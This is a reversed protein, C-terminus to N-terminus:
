KWEIIRVQPFKEKIKQPTAGKLDSLLIEALYKCDEDRFLRKPIIGDIARPIFAYPPELSFVFFLAEPNMEKIRAGFVNANNLRSNFVNGSIVLVEERSVLGVSLPDNTWFIDDALSSNKKAVFDRIKNLHSQMQQVVVIKM